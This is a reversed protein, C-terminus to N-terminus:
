VQDGAAHGADEGGQLAVAPEQDPGAESGQPGEAAGAASGAAERVAPSPAPSPSVLSPSSSEPLEESHAMEFHGDKRCRPLGTLQAAQM